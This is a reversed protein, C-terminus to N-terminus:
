QDSLNIAIVPQLAFVPQMLLRNSLKFILQKHRIHLPAHADTPQFAGPCQYSNLTLHLPVHLHKM